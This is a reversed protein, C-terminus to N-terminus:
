DEFFLEKELNAFDEETFISEQEIKKPTEPITYHKAQARIVLKDLTASDAGGVSSLLLLKQINEEVRDHSSPGKKVEDVTQKKTEKIENFTGILVVSFLKYKLYM